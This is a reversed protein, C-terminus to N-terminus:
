EGPKKIEVILQIDFQYSDTAVGFWLQRSNTSGRTDYSLGQIVSPLSVKFMERDRSLAKKFGGAVMNAMEAIADRVTEDLKTLTMGLMGTAVKCAADESFHLTIVGSFDGALGVLASVQPAETTRHDIQSIRQGLMTAFIERLGTMLATRYDNALEPPLTNELQSM